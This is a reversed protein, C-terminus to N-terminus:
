WTNTSCNWPFKDKSVRQQLFILYTKLSTFHNKLADHPSLPNLLLSKAAYLPPDLIKLFPSESWATTEPMVWLYKPTFKPWKKLQINLLLYKSLKQIKSLLIWIPFYWHHTNNDIGATLNVQIAQKESIRLWNEVSKSSIKCPSNELWAADVMNYLEFTLGNSM